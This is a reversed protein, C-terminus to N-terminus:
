FDKLVSVFFENLENYSKHKEAPLADIQKKLTEFSEEIYQNISKIPQIKDTEDSNIKKDLLECVVPKMYDELESEVLGTFLMPPPTKNDLIWKCALIPRLVYFYKKLKVENEQFYERYNSKATNLYHYLGAKSSFYHNIINKLENWKESSKYIIPSNAWEFITPNSSHLLVLTKKIDWGNIDFVEDPPIEIVDRTKELKLYFEPKRVYIFRVDYDSDKSSFGWARSGSEAAYLIKIDESKEIENLKRIITNYM